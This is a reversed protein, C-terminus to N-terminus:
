YHTVASTVTLYLALRKGHNSQGTYLGNYTLILQQLEHATKVVTYNSSLVWVMHFKRMIYLLIDNRIARSAPEQLLKWYVKKNQM